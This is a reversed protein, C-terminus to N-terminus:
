ALLLHDLHYELSSDGKYFVGGFSGVRSCGQLNCSLKPQNNSAWIFVYNKYEVFCTYRNVFKIFGILGWNALYKKVYGCIGPFIM